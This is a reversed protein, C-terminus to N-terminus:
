RGRRPADPLTVGVSLLVHSFQDASGFPGCGYWQRYQSRVTLWAADNRKGQLKYTAALGIEALPNVSTELLKAETCGCGRTRSNGGYVSVQQDQDRLNLWGVGAGALAAVRWRPGDLLLLSNSWTASFMELRPRGAAEATSAPQAAPMRGTFTGRLGSSWRPRLFYYGEMDGGLYATRRQDRLGMLGLYAGFRSPEFPKAVACSDAKVRSAHHAMVVPHCAQARGPAPLLTAALLLLPYVTPKM